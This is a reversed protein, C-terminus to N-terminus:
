RDLARLRDEYIRKVEKAVAENKKELEKHAKMMEDKPVRTKKDIELKRLKKQFDGRALKTANLCREM